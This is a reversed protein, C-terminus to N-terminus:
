RRTWQKQIQIKNKNKQKSCTSVLSLLTRKRNRKQGSPHQAPLRHTKHTNKLRLLRCIYRPNPFLVRKGLDILTSATHNTPKPPPSSTKGHAQNANRCPRVTSLRADIACRWDARQCCQVVFPCPAEARERTLPLTPVWPSESIEKMM